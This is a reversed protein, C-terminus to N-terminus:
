GMTKLDFTKHVKNIVGQGNTVEEIPFILQYEPESFPNGASNAIAQQFSTQGEFSPIPKTLFIKEEPEVFPNCPPLPFPALPAWYEHKSKTKEGELM